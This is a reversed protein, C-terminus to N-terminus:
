LPKDDASPRIDDSSDTENEYDPNTLDITRTRSEIYSPTIEAGEELEEPSLAGPNQILMYEMRLYKLAMLAKNAQVKVVNDQVNAIIKNITKLKEKIESLMKEADNEEVDTPDEVDFALLNSYFPEKSYFLTMVSAGDELRGAELELREFQSRNIDGAKYMDERATMLNISGVELDMARRESRIKRIEAVQRDQADDQFDFVFRLQPPLFKHNIIRVTTELIQGPGKGRQKLHQLLADARTAGASMAPFLERADVGFALAITAMGLVTSTEEDFGDPLSSLEVVRLDAEEVSSSGGVVIKSYRSLGQSDMNSEAMRFADSIDSPDLGGQTIIISRHPRSGLKEQKFTLIDILTQSVNICRSVACVGVGNMDSIPSKMQSAYAVRSHHLKSKKGDEGEYVVPFIPNGTRTCRGSDLHAISTPRGRIPGDPAGAGIIEAFGGNDQTLLDEVFGGYFETWGGGFEAGHKLLETLEEARQVDEPVTQDKAVVKNPIATMKSVMTYLAGSLHDSGKWFNRLERDRASSWWPPISLGARAMWNVLFVGGGEVDERVHSQVTQDTALEINSNVEALGKEIDDSM